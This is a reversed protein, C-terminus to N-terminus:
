GVVDLVLEPVGPLVAGAVVAVVVGLHGRGGDGVAVDVEGAEAGVVGAGAGEADVAKEGVAGGGGCGGVEGGVDCRCGAPLRM